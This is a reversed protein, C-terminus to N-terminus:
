TLHTLPVPATLATLCLPLQPCIRDFAIRLMHLYSSLGAPSRDAVVGHVGHRFSKLLFAVLHRIECSLCQYGMHGMHVRKRPLALGSVRVFLFYLVLRLPKGTCLM